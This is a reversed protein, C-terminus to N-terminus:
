KMGLLMSVGKNQNLKTKISPQFFFLVTNMITVCSLFRLRIIRVVTCQYLGYIHLVFGLFVSSFPVLLEHDKLFHLITKSPFFLGLHEQFFFLHLGAELDKSSHLFLLFM